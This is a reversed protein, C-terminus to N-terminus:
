AEPAKRRKGRGDTSPSRWPYASGDAVAPKGYLLIPRRSFGGQAAACPEIRGLREFGLGALFGDFAEPRLEIDRVTQRIEPNLKRKKVYSKWDQPELVFLGGPRLRKLVRKFLNRVGVDGSAFHVWKTVSLCLVIDFREPRMGPLRRLPSELIDEARFEIEGRAAGDAAAATASARAEQILSSDIDTGVVRSAGLGRVALSVRGSNCGIDLVEQGSFLGDGFRRRLSAIRLDEKEEGSYRYGYYRDYNGREFVPRARKLRTPGRVGGATSPDTHETPEGTAAEGGGGATSGAAAKQLAPPRGHGAVRLGTFGGAPVFGLVHMGRGHTVVPEIPREVWRRVSGGAPVSAM